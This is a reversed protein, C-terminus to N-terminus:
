RRPQRPLLLVAPLLRFLAVPWALLLWAALAPPNKQLGWLDLQPGGETSPSDKASFVTVTSVVAWNAFWLILLTAPTM